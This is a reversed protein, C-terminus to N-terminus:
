KSTWLRTAADVARGCCLSWGVSGTCVCVCAYSEGSKCGPPDNWTLDRHRTGNLTAGVSISVPEVQLLFACASPSWIINPYWSRRAYATHAMKQSIKTVVSKFGLSLGRWFFVFFFFGFVGVLVFSHAMVTWCGPPRSRWAVSTLRKMNLTLANSM